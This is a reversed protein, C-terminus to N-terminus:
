DCRAVSRRVEDVVARLLRGRPEWDSVGGAGTVLTRCAALLGVSWFVRTSVFVSMSMPLPSLLRALAASLPLM